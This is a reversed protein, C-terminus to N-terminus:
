ILKGRGTLFDLDKVDGGAAVLIKDAINKMQADQLHKRREFPFVEKEFLRESYKDPCIDIYSQVNPLGQHREDTECLVLLPKGLKFATELEFITYVRNFYGKTLYVIFWRAQVIGQVMGQTTISKDQLVDVWSNISHRKLLHHLLGVADQADAQSHSIFADQNIPSLCPKYKELLDLVKAHNEAFSLQKQRLINTKTPKIHSHLVPLRKHNGNYVVHVIKKNDKNVWEDVIQGEFWMKHSESYVQVVFGIGWTLRDNQILEVKEKMETAVVVSKAISPSCMIPPTYRMSSPTGKTSSDLSGSEVTLIPRDFYTSDRFRRYPLDKDKWFKCM